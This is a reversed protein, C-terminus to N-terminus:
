KRLVEDIPMPLPAPRDIPGNVLKRMFHRVFRSPSAGLEAFAHYGLKEYFGRAQFAHTYLWVGVCGRERAVTEAQQLLRTGVDQGRLAEPVFLMEVFLWDYSSRGWLGGITKGDADRLLLALPKHDTPEGVRSENYATLAAAIAARDAPSPDESAITEFQM